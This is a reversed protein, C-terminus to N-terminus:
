HTTLIAKAKHRTHGSSAKNLTAILNNDALGAKTAILDAACGLPVTRTKYITAPDMMWSPKDSLMPVRSMSEVGGTVLMQSSGAAIRDAALCTADLSSSCFRSLTIGPVHDPWGAYIVSARAINGGQEGVQSVCGLMVDDVEAPNLGTRVELAKYLHKLLELPTLSHLSGCEKAMGRPSRIADYIYTKEM